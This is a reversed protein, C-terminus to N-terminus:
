WFIGTLILHGHNEYGNKYYYFICMNLEMVEM